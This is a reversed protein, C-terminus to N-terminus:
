KCPSDGGARQTETSPGLLKILADRFEAYTVGKQQHDNALLAETLSESCHKLELRECLEQLGDFGLRCDLCDACEEFLSKLQLEFADM